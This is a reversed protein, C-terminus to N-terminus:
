DKVCRISFMHHRYNSSAREMGAKNHYLQRTYAADGNGASSGTWFYAYYGLPDNNGDSGALLGNFGGEAISTSKRDPDFQGEPADCCNKMAQGHADAAEETPRWSQATNWATDWEGANPFLSNDTYRSYRGPHEYIEKELLNWEYDSPLHWGQPCIGQIRQQKGPSTGEPSHGEDNPSTGGSTNYINKQGDDGGKGATAADWTYLLGRQPNKDYQTTGESASGPYCWYAANPLHGPNNDPGELTRPTGDGGTADGGPDQSHNIGDYKWATLNTIMWRGAPGFDASYFEEYVNGLAPNDGDVPKAGHYVVKRGWTNGTGSTENPMVTLVVPQQKIPQWRNGDWIRLGTPDYIDKNDPCYNTNYVIMAIHKDRKFQNYGAPLMPYLKNMDTLNVRPLLLGKTATTNNEQGEKEKLDLLAGQNPNILSGITVQAQVHSCLLICFIGSLLFMSKLHTKKKM